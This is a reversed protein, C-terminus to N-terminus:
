SNNDYRNKTWVELEHLVRADASKRNTARMLEKYHDSDPFKYGNDDFCNEEIDKLFNTYEKTQKFLMTSNVKVKGDFDIQPKGDQGYLIYGITRKMEGACEAMDVSTMDANFVERSQRWYYPVVAGRFFARLDALSKNESNLTDSLTEMHGEGKENLYNIREKVYEIKEDRTQKLLKDVVEEANSHMDIFGINKIGKATKM